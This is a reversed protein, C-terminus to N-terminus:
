NRKRKRTQGEMEDEKLSEKIRSVINGEDDEVLEVQEM